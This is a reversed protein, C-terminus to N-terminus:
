TTGTASTTSTPAPPPPSSPKPPPPPATSTTGTAGAASKKRGAKEVEKVASEFEADGDDMESNLFVKRIAKLLRFDGGCANALEKQKGLACTHSTTIGLKSLKIFVAKRAGGYQLVCDVYYAFASLRPERGRLAIAAAACTAHPSQKTIRSFISFTFPTMRRLDSELNAFSFAKLDEASSRWLMFGKYPNCLLQSEEEIVKLINEKLQALLKKHRVILNAARRWNQKTINEVIGATNAQCTIKEGKPHSPYYIIVQL